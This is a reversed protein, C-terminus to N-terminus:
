TREQTLGAANFYTSVNDYNWNVTTGGGHEYAEGSSGRMGYAQPHYEEMLAAKKSALEPKKM